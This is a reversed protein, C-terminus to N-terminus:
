RGILHLSFAKWAPSVLGAGATAQLLIMWTAAAVYAPLLRGRTALDYAGLCLVLLDSCLYLAVM